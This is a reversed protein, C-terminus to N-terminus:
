QEPTGADESPIKDSKFIQLFASGALEPSLKGLNELISMVEIIIIFTCVAVQIPMTFGLDVYSMAYECMIGFVIALLFGCKHWLGQKMKTSQVEHNKVAACFGTILDLMMFVCAIVILAWNVDLPLM